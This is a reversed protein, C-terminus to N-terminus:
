VKERALSPVHKILEDITLYAHPFNIERGSVLKNEFEYVENFPFVYDYKQRVLSRGLTTNELESLLSDVRWLIRKQSDFDKEETFHIAQKLERLVESYKVITKRLYVEPTEMLFGYGFM